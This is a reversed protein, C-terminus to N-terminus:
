QIWFFRSYLCCWISKCHKAFYISSFGIGFELVSMKNSIKNKLIELFPYSFQPIYEEEEDVHLGNGTKFWGIDFIAEQGYISLPFNLKIYIKLFQDIFLILAVIALCRYLSIKQNKM